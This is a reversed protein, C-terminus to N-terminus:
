DTKCLLERHRKLYINEGEMLKGKLRSLHQVLDNRYIKELIRKTIELTDSSGYRHVMLDVTDPRDAKELRAEPIASFGELICDQKLFWQFLKFQEEKLNELTNWLEEKLNSM